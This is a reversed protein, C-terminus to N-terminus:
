LYAGIRDKINNRLCGWFLMVDYSHLDGTFHQMKKIKNVLPGRAELLGNINNISVSFHQETSLRLSKKAGSHNTALRDAFNFNPSKTIVSSHSMSPEYWDSDNTWSFPNTSFIKQDMYEISWGEPRWFITRERQRKFGETVTSWSILCNTDTPSTSRPILPFLDDYYQEPIIYGIAYACIMRKQLSTGQIYKSILRHAHLAGQSHSMIIFPKNNNFNEIFYNFSSLVDEFALDHAKMGDSDKAFYSYYTAQRYEPAYINCSDNFASVQNGLMMETREYAARDKEMFSNWTKEFFGTPHIYFVDVENNKKIVSYNSSPVYFQQADKDPYAAWNDLNSYDPASPHETNDFSNIPKIYKLLDYLKEDDM